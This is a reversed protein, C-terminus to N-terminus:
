LLDKKVNRETRIFNARGDFSERRNEVVGFPMGRLVARAAVTDSGEACDAMRRYYTAAAPRDGQRVHLEALDALITMDRPALREARM